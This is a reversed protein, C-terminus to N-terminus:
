DKVLCANVHIDLDLVPGVILCGFNTFYDAGVVLNFTVEAAFNLEVDFTKHVDSAITANTM